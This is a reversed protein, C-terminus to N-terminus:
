KQAIRVISLVSPMHEADHGYTEKLIQQILVDPRISSGSHAALTFEIRAEDCIFHELYDAVRIEKTKDKKQILIVEPIVVHGISDSLIIEYVFHEFVVSAAKASHEVYEAHFPMLGKSSSDQLAKLAKQPAVYTTLFLDFIECTSGVGVPLAAGYGIKMHPSFGQSIAFPLQSRRITRELAHAVELHSLYALREAKCYMVRLRFLSPDSV